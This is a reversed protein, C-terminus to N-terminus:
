KDKHTLIQWSRQACILLNRHRPSPFLYLTEFHLRDCHVVGGGGWQKGTCEQPRQRLKSSQRNVSYLSCYM